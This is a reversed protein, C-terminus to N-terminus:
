TIEGTIKKLVLNFSSRASKTASGPIEVAGCHNKFTKFFIEPELGTPNLLVWGWSM